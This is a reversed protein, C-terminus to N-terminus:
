LNARISFNIYFYTSAFIKIICKNFTNQKLQKKNSFILSDYM